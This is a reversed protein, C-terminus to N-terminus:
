CTRGLRSVSRDAGIWLYAHGCNLLWLNMPWSIHVGVPRCGSGQSLRLALHFHVRRRSGKREQYYGGRVYVEVRM